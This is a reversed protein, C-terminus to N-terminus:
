GALGVPRPRPYTHPPTLSTSSGQGGHSLRKPADDELSHGRPQPHSKRDPCMHRPQPNLGGKFQTKFCPVHHSSFSFFSELELGPAEDM